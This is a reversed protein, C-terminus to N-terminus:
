LDNIKKMFDNSNLRKGNHMTNRIRDYAKDLDM